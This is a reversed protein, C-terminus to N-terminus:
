SLGELPQDIAKFVGASLKYECDAQLLRVDNCPIGTLDGGDLDIVVGQFYYFVEGVEPCVDGVVKRQVRLYVPADSFGCSKHGLHGFSYPFILHESLVGLHSDHVVYM